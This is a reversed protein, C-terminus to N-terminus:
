SAPLALFLTLYSLNGVLLIAVLLVTGIMWARDPQREVLALAVGVLLGLGTGFLGGLVAGLSLAILAVIAFAIGVLRRELAYTAGALLATPLVFLAGTFVFGPLADVITVDPSSPYLTADLVSILGVGFHLGLVFIALELARGGHRLAWTWGIFLAVPVLLAPVILAGNGFLAYRGFTPGYHEALVTAVAIVAGAGFGTLALLPM